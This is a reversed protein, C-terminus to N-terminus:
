PRMCLAHGTTNTKHESDKTVTPRTTVMQNQQYNTRLKSADYMRVTETLLHLSCNFAATTQHPGIIDGSVDISEATRERPGLGFLRQITLAAAIM